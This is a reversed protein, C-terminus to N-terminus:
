LTTSNTKLRWDQIWLKCRQIVQNHNKHTRFKSKLSDLYRAAVITMRKFFKPSTQEFLAFSTLLDETSGVVGYFKDVNYKAKELAARSPETCM